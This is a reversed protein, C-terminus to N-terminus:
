NKITCYHKECISRAYIYWLPLGHKITLHPCLSIDLAFCSTELCFINDHLSPLAHYDGLSIHKQKIYDKSFYYWINEMTGTM